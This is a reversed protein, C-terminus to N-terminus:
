FYKLLKFLRDLFKDGWLGTILGITTSLIITEKWMINHADNFFGSVLSILLGITFGVIFRTIFDVTKYKQVQRKTM